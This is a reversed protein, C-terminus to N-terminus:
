EAGADAPLRIKRSDVAFTDSQAPGILLEVAFQIVGVPAFADAFSAIIDAVALTVQEIELDVVQGHARVAAFQFKRLGARHVHGRADGRAQVFLRIRFDLIARVVFLGVPVDLSRANPFRAFHWDFDDDVAVGHGPLINDGVSFRP